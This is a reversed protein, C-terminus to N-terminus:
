IIHERVELLYESVRKLLEDLALLRHLCKFSIFKLFLKLVYHTVHNLFDFPKGLGAHLLALGELGELLLVRITVYDLVEWPLHGLFDQLVNLRGLFPLQARLIILLAKM